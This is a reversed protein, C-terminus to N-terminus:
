SSAKRAHHRACTVAATVTLIVTAIIGALPSVGWAAATTFYLLLWGRWPVPRRNRHGSSWLTTRVPGISPGSVHFRM